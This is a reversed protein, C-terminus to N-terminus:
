SLSLRLDPKAVEDCKKDQEPKQETNECIANNSSSGYGFLIPSEPKTVMNAQAKEKIMKCGGYAGVFQDTEPLLKSSLRRPLYKRIISSAEGYLLISDLNCKVNQEKCSQKIEQYIHEVGAIMVKKILIEAQKKIQEQTESDYNSLSLKNNLIDLVFNGLIGYKNGVLPAGNIQQYFSLERFEKYSEELPKFELQETANDSFNYYKPHELLALILSGYETKPDNTLQEKLNIEEKWKAFQRGCEQFLTKSLNFGLESLSGYSSLFGYGGFRITPISDKYGFGISGAGSIILVGNDNNAGSNVVQFDGEVQYSYFNNSSTLLEEIKQKSKDVSVGPLGLGIHVRYTTKDNLNISNNSSLYSVANDYLKAIHEGVLDANIAVNFNGETSSKYLEVGDQDMIMVNGNLGTGHIGVYIDKM